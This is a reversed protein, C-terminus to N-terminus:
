ASSPMRSRTRDRPSPSTYLLCNLPKSGFYWQGDPQQKLVLELGSLTLSRVALRREIMSRFLDIRISLSRILADANLPSAGFLLVDEVEVEPDLLRLHASISQFQFQVGLTESLSRQLETRYETAVNAAFRLITVFLAFGVLAVILGIRIWGFIRSMIDGM